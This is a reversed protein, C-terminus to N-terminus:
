WKKWGDSPGRKRRIQGKYLTANGICYVGMGVGMIDDDHCGSRAEEKGNKSVIFTKAEKIIHPCSLDITQDRIHLALCDVITRRQDRDKLKWGYQYKKTKRDDPDIVERKYIPLGSKKLENLIHLGMNVELVIMCDGYFRSLNVIYSVIDDVEATCPPRVRAAVKHHKTVEGMSYGARLVGISYADPDNSETQDEGTAPDCWLIYRCGPIPREFLQIPAFGGNEPSFSVTGGDQSTLRGNEVVQSQIKKEMQVVAGMDFRPRGSSLFCSVDDEPYFEDFLEDSGGCEGSITDRRWAMQEVTWGYNRIGNQERATLTSLIRQRESESVRRQNEEFEFWAAFVKVWGNGPCPNGKKLEALYDDLSLAAPMDKTGHWQEYFWGSNGCWVAKANCRRVLLLHDKPLTVCFVQGDYMVSTPPNLYTVKARTCEGYSAVRNRPPGYRSTSYGCKLALEMVDDQLEKDLGVYIKGSIQGGRSQREQDGDGEYIAALLVKCQSSSLGMLLDRPIRKPQSFQHLYSALQCDEIIWRFGGGHISEKVSGTIFPELAMVASRFSDVFKTQTMYVTNRRQNKGTRGRFLVGGDSLWHGLFKLWVDIPINRAARTHIGRGRGSSYAPLVFSNIGNAEWTFGLDFFYDTTTKLMSEARRFKMAGRSCAAWIQHNPTVVLDVTRTSIKVMPGSYRHVQKVWESQYYAVNTIPSKTLIREDGTLEAFFKWGEDTLVETKDDYCAGEPTSEAIGLKNVSPLVSAMIKKDDKVGGRPYKCAESFLAASRTRSIGPNMTEASTIEAKSGNLWRLKTEGPVLPNGWPFRDTESYVKMKTLIAQSNSAVNAIVVSESTFRQHHHYIIHCAGTTGGCQRIKLGLIRIYLVGVALLIEYAEFLRRQFVNASPTVRKIGGNPTEIEIKACTEFHVLASQGALHFRPDPTRM